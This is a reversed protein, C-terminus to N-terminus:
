PGAGVTRARAQRRPRATTEALTASERKSIPTPPIPKSFIMLPTLITDHSHGGIPDSSLSRVNALSAWPKKVDFSVGSDRKSGPKSGGALDGNTIRSLGLVSKSKKLLVQRTNSPRKSLRILRTSCSAELFSSSPPRSSVGLSISSSQLLLNCSGPQSTKSLSHASPLAANRPSSKPSASRNGGPQTSGSPGSSRRRPNTSSTSPGEAITTTSAAAPPSSAFIDTGQMPTLFPSETAARVLASVTSRRGTSQLSYKKPKTEPLVPPPIEGGSCHPGERESAGPNVLLRGNLRARTPNHKPPSSETPQSPMVGVFGKASVEYASACATSERPLLGPGLCIGSDLDPGPHHVLHRQSQIRGATSHCRQRAGGATSPLGSSATQYGCKVQTGFLIDESDVGAVAPRSRTIPRM